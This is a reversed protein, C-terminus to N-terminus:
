ILKNYLSYIANANQEISYLSVAMNQATIIKQKYQETNVLNVIDSMFKTLEDQNNYLWGGDTTELIEKTGGTNRGIVLCGYILSEATMRGFAEYQSSVILACANSMLQAIECKNKYGLFKVRSTLGLNDVLRQLEIMYENGTCFGAILLKYDSNTKCFEAFAQITGEIKKEPSIRSACLFYKEKEHIYIKENEYLVGNYIVRANKHNQLQFHKTLDKTITIVNDRMLVSIFQQKAPFIKWNFDKDQYERIHWCHPIKLKRAVTAGEHVVGTNTHIIDPSFKVIVSKLQIYSLLKGVFLKAIKLPFLLIDKLNKISPYISMVVRTSYYNIRLEKLRDILQHNESSTPYVVYPIIDKEKKLEEIMNLFSITAGGMITSHIIYLVKM